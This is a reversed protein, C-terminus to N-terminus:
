RGPITPSSLGTSPNFSRPTQNLGGNIIQENRTQVWIQTGDPLTKASWVNGFQDTGLRSNPDNAVGLLLQQNASTNPLHGEEQQFIHGLQSPNTPLAVEPPAPSLEPAPPALQYAGGGGGLQPVSGEVGENECEFGGGGPPCTATALQVGPRLEVGAGGCGQPNDCLGSPDTANLPDNDTYAYLNPGGAYGIPDPQPFRGWNPSYMRARDYYLGSPQATSGATEPDFRRATYRYTGTIVSPNEGFPQYGSKALAGGSDLTGVISGQIDPIMTERTGTAVNMQGLVADPGRGFAYWRQVAGSGGDYELIERNDADTVFLTTTSGVTKSKRRGQADYAYSAVATGGQGVSVLRSEADYGYTFAGDYTLNGNQDYTPSVSGVQSYQNLNNATYATTTTAPNAPYSWWSNDSATQSTRRNTPDYGHAFTVASAAPATQAAAPSWSVAQPRNMADYTTGATYAATTSPATVAASTDGVSTVRGALDYGWSM